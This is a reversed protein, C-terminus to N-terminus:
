WYDRDIVLQHQADIRTILRERFRDDATAGYRKIMSIDWGLLWM